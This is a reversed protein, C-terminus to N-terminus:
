CSSATGVQETTVNVKAEAIFTKLPKREHRQWARRSGNGGCKIETVGKDSIASLKATLLFM